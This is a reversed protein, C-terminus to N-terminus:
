INGGNLQEGRGGNVQHAGSGDLQAQGIVRVGLQVEVLRALEDVGEGAQDGSAGRLDAARVGARQAVTQAGQLEGEALSGGNLVRDALPGALLPRPRD